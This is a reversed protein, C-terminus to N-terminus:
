RWGLMRLAAGRLTPAAGTAAARFHGGTRVGPPLPKSAPRTTPRHGRRFTPAPAPTVQELWV